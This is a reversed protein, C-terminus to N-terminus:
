AFATTACGPSSKLSARSVNTFRAKVVAASQQTTAVSVSALAREDLCSYYCACDRLSIVKNSLFLALLATTITVKHRAFSEGRRHVVVTPGMDVLNESGMCTQYLHIGLLSVLM